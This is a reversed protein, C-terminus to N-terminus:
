PTLTSRWAQDLDVFALGLVARTAEDLSQGAAMARAWDNRAKRGWRQSIYGVLHNGQHYALIKLAAPSTRYDSIDAWDALSRQAAM